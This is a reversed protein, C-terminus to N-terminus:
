YITDNANDGPKIQGLKVEAVRWKGQVKDLNLLVTYTSTGHKVTGAAGDVPASEDIQLEGAGIVSGDSQENFTVQLNKLALSSAMGALSQIAEYSEPSGYTEDENSRQALKSDTSTAIKVARKFFETTRTQYVAKDVLKEDINITKAAALDSQNTQLSKEATALDHTAKVNYVLASGLFLAILSVVATVLVTRHKM